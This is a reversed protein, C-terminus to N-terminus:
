ALGGGARRGRRRILALLYLGGLTSTMLGVPWEMPAVAGRCLADALALLAGGCLSANVMLSQHGMPGLARALHPAALGIFGVLGVQSVATGTALALATLLAMRCFSLPLGLTSTAEEGLTLADLVRACPLAIVLSVAMAASLLAVSHADAFATTGLLFAQRARLIDPHLLALMEAAAGMLMGTVVGALLLHTSQRLSGALTMSLVVGSLAGLFAALPIGLLGAGIVLSLSVGLHAGAASGLLFPDALPNRFLGQAIAGALGLAAGALWASLSRPLRLELILASDQAWAAPHLSWGDAGAALGLLLGLM